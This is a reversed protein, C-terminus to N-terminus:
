QLVFIPIFNQYIKYLKKFQKYFKPKTAVTRLESIHRRRLTFTSPDRRVTTQVM